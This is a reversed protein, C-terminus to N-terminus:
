IEAEVRLDDVRRQHGAIADEETSYRWQEQDHPGTGFIMTEFILPPGAGWNHNLGLYVTSVEYDGVKTKAVIKGDGDWEKMWQDLSIPEGKRSYYSQSM